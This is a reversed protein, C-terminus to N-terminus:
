HALILTSMLKIFQQLNKNPLALSQKSESDWIVHRLVGMELVQLREAGQFYEAGVKVCFAAEVVGDGAAIVGEEDGSRRVEACLIWLYAPMVRAGLM